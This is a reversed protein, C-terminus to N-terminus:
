QASNAGGSNNTAGTDNGVLVPSYKNIYVDGSALSEGVRAIGTEDLAHYKKFMAQRHKEKPYTVPAIM